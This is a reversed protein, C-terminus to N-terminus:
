GTKKSLANIVMKQNVNESKLEDIQETLKKYNWEARFQAITVRDDLLSNINVGMNVFVYILSAPCTREGNIIGNVNQATVNFKAGLSENTLELVKKLYKIKQGLINNSVQYTQEDESSHTTEM